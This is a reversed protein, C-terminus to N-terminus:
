ATVRTLRRLIADADAAIERVIEGAPKLKSVLGVSQGAWLAMADIDGDADAGPTYSQYRLIPGVSRSTGIVEGEGPRKGSPPRGAAEWTAITQNRLVRHPADPWRGDFLNDLYVTDNENARQLHERYRPHIAAEESLLFRTGIWAGAAGLALAAALGRGDAVGGAAVVLVPAVADVVAPVLAMTAVTGRVHGGAEWGQAVVVDVGCDMAQRAAAASGVTHLVVAGNAKARPVLASPDRWFFSIVPVGEDLCAALREEQPFELNLNVGFPRATLARTERIQRRVTEIDARWPVLMGLGGANSVAAALAPGVAGGMPAQIIPLEVGLRECLTTKM